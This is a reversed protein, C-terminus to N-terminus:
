PTCGYFRLCLPEELVGEAASRAATPCGLFRCTRQDPARAVDFTTDTLRQLREWLAGNLVLRDARHFKSMEYENATSDRM